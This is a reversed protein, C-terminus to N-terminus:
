MITWRVVFIFQTSHQQKLQAEIKRILGDRQEDIRDQENYLERRKRNRKDEIQRLRKQAALKDILSVVTQAARRAEKIEKDIEKLERELGLKLDDAWRDLKLVEEDFFRANRQEVSQIREKVQRECIPALNPIDMRVSGDVRAPLPMLKECVEQDLVDGADTVASFILFEETDLAEVTLKSLELWGSTGVLPEIMEVLLKVICRPTYFEGGKKGEKSAFQSLFYEYVRGLIDKSRNEEDGLGITGILDILEGLRQKDLAPRAYDKPLVAKLSPNEKEIAVMAEDILVGIEPQKAREQLYSWRAEKPVWFINAMAYADRDEAEEYRLMPEAVFWESKPDALEHEIEQRREEFADSIYKLFILGLVVHKYESPDMHGRMKDAAQWLTEEFGLTAGNNVRREAM